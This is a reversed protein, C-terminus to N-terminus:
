DEDPINVIPKTQLERLNELLQEMNQEEASKRAEQQRVNASRIQERVRESQVCLIADGRQVQGAANFTIATESIEDPVVDAQKELQELIKPADRKLMSKTVPVVGFAQDMSLADTHSWRWSLRKGDSEFVERLASPISTWTPVEPSAVTKVSEAAEAM